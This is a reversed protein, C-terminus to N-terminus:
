LVDCKTGYTGIADQPLEFLSMQPYFWVKLELFSYFRNKIIASSSCEDM